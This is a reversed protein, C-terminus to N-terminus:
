KPERRGVILPAAEVDLAFHAIQRLSSRSHVTLATATSVEPLGRPSNILVERLDAQLKLDIPGYGPTHYAPGEVNVNPLWGAPPWRGVRPGGRGPQCPGTEETYELVPAHM